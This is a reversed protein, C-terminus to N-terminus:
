LLYSTGCTDCNSSGDDQNIKQEEQDMSGKQHTQWDQRVRWWDGQCQGLRNCSQWQVRAPAQCQWELFHSSYAQTICYMLHSVTQTLFPFLIASKNCQMHKSGKDKRSQHVSM